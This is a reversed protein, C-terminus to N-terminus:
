QQYALAAQTRQLVGKAAFVEIREFPIHDAAHSGYYAERIIGQEDILFNAPMINNTNVGGLGKVSGVFGAKGMGRIWLIMHTLVTWIKRWFSRRVGYVQYSEGNPEAAVPFPRPRKLIFRRVDEPSSAFVAVVNLGMAEFTSYHQTLRYIQMNCFPCAADRFFALLTRKGEGVKIVNGDIDKLLIKPAKDSVSLAM